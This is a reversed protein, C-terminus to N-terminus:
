VQGKIERGHEGAKVARYIFSALKEIQKARTLYSKREEETLVHVSIDKCENAWDQLQSIVERLIVKNIRIYAKM